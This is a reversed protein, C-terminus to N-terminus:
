KNNFGFTIGLKYIKIFTKKFIKILIREKINFVRKDVEIKEKNSKKVVDKREVLVAKM